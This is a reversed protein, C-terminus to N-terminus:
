HFPYFLNALKTPMLLKMHFLTKSIQADKNESKEQLTTDSQKLSDIISHGSAAAGVGIVAALGLAVIRGKRYQLHHPLTDPTTGPAIEVPNPQGYGDFHEVAGAFNVNSTGKRVDVPEAAGGVETVPIIKIEHNQENNM